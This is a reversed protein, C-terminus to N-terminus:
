RRLLERAAQYVELYGAAVVGPAWTAAAHLPGCVLTRPALRGSQEIAAAFATTDFPDVLIGLDEHAVVDVLGGVKFAVVPTGCAISEAATQSFSEMRSPVVHVNAASYVKALRQPDSIVGLSRIRVPGITTEPVDSGFVWLEWTDEPLLEVAQRLLDWGKGHFRTAGMGGFVAAKVQAPLGLEGRAQQQDMPTFVSTDIPNPVVSMPWEKTLTASKAQEVMWPSPGVLWRPQQFRRSKRRYTWADVDLRSNGPQRSSRSYAQQFRIDTANEPHHEAGCFPWSDHLTWVVPGPISGIERLSMTGSGLWHLHVVDPRAHEISPVIGRSVLGFSRHVANSSKQLYLPVAESMSRLTKHDRRKPGIVQAFSLVRPDDTTKEEVWMTTGPALESVAQLIRYAARDAGGGGDSHSIM